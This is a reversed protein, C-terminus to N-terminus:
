GPGVSPSAPNKIIGLNWLFFKWTGGAHLDNSEPESGNLIVIQNIM